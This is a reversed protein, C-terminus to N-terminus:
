GGQGCHDGGLVLESEYTEAQGNFKACIDKELEM